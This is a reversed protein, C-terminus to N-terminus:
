LNNKSAQILDVFSKSPSISLKMKFVVRTFILVVPGFTEFNTKFIFRLWIKKHFLSNSITFALDDDKSV